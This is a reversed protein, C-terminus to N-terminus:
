RLLEFIDEMWKRDYNDTITDLDPSSCILGSHTERANNEKNSLVDKLKAAVEVAEKSDSTLWQSIIKELLKDINDM